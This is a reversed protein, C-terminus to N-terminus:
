KGSDLIAVLVGKGKNKLENHVRDVQTMAHPLISPASTKKGKKVKEVIVEPRKILRVPTVSKVDSRDLISKLSSTHIADDSTDLKISLGNFLEHAYRQNVKLDGEIEGQLSQTFISGASKSNSNFSVIYRGPIINTSGKNYKPHDVKIADATMVLVALCVGAVVIPFYSFSNRKMKLLFYNDLTTSLFFPLPFPRNCSPNYSTKKKSKSHSHLVFSKNIYTKKKLLGSRM